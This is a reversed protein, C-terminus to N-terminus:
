ESLNHSRLAPEGGVLSFVKVYGAKRFAEATMKTRVGAACVLVTTEEAKIQDPIQLLQDMPIHDHSVALPHLSVEEPTRIDIMRYPALAALEEVQIDISKISENMRIGNM